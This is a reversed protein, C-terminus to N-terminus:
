QQTTPQDSFLLLKLLPSIGEESGIGPSTPGVTLLRPASGFALDRDFLGANNFLLDTSLDTLVDFVFLDFLTFLAFLSHPSSFWFILASQKGKCAQDMPPCVSGINQETVAVLPPMQGRLLKEVACCLRLYLCCFVRM